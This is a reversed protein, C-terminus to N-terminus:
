VMVGVTVAVSRSVAIELITVVFVLTTVVVRSGLVVVFRTNTANPFGVNSDFGKFTCTMVLSKNVIM